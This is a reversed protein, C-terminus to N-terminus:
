AGMSAIGSIQCTPTDGGLGSDVFIRTSIAVATGDSRTLFFNGWVHRSHANNITTGFVTGSGTFPLFAYDSFSPAAGGGNAIDDAQQDWGTLTFTNSSSETLAISVTSATSGCRGKLTFGDITGLTVEPAAASPAATYGLSQATAQCTVTGDAAVTQVAEGAGCSGSVREQYGSAAVGALKAADAASPAEANPAFDASGVSGPALTPSPYNGALAGGAPGTAPGPEGRDGKAGQPGKAGAAGTLTSKAATSLKAPTVAEKKIQKSGVSNKPLQTAAFATGGALAVFLALTAVVNAYTLKIPLRNM